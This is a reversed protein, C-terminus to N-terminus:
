STKWEDRLDKQYQVPDSIDKFLDPDAHKELIQQINEFQNEPVLEKETNINEIKLELNLSKLLRILFNADSGSKVSIKITTM